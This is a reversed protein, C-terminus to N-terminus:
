KSIHLAIRRLALPQLFAKYPMSKLSHHAADSDLSPYFCALLAMAISSDVGYNARDILCNTRM